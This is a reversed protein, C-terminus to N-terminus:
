YEINSSLPFSQLWKTGSNDAIDFKIYFINKTAWLSQIITKQVIVM